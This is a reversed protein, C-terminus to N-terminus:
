RVKRVRAVFAIWKRADGGNGSGICVTETDPSAEEGPAGLDSCRADGPSWLPIRAQLRFGIVQAKGPTGPLHQTPVPVADVPRYDGRAALGERNKSVFRRGWIKFCGRCCGRRLSSPVLLRECVRYPKRKQHKPKSNPVGM